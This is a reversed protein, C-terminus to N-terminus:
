NKSTPVLNKVFPNDKLAEIMDMDLRDQSEYVTRGRTLTDIDIQQYTNTIRDRNQFAREAPEDCTVKRVEVNMADSGLASKVNEKTPERNVLTSEKLENITANYMDEYSKTMHTNQDAAQGYYEIDVMTEKITAKIDTPAVKYGDADAINIHGTYERDSLTQKHTAKMDYEEGIYAGVQRDTKDIAGVYDGTLTTEKTTTRANLDPDRATVMKKAVSMGLSTDMDDLTERGTTKAKILDPDYVIGGIRDGKVNTLIADHIMTEKNTTRAVDNPDKVIGMTHGKLNLKEAEAITTEKITTRAVDNDDHVTMKVPGRLNLMEADHILTEKITTRMTDNPDLVPAKSPIQIQMQGYPRANDVMFEKKTVKFVDELPAIIAKVVSTLNGQYTRCSTIDRENAYVQISSKGYDTKSGKGQSQLSPNALSFGELQTRHPDRVDSRHTQRQSHYAVGTYETTTEQRSTDRAEYKPHQQAKIVAGTTTFYRNPGNEFYTEVRNKELKGVKGRLAGKQGDLMRAKYTLKPNSGIRLEDITKPRVIDQVDMQQYGGTPKSGYGQNLGPGVKIQKFPLVNNQVVPVSIHSILRDTQSPAGNIYCHDKSAKFLPEQERKPIYLSDDMTGTFNELKSMNAKPDLNQRITSGFFPVMNNHVFDQVPIDQGTLKSKVIPPKYIQPIVKPIDSANNVVSKQYMKNAKAQEIKRATDVYNSEYPTRQSPLENVNIQQVPNISAPSKNQNLYYGLGLLTLIAYVEIM